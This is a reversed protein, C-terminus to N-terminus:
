RGGPHDKPWGNCHAFEHRRVVDDDVRWVYCKGDQAVGSCGQVGARRLMQADADGNWKAAIGACIRVVESWPLVQEIVAMPPPVDYQPPPLLTM